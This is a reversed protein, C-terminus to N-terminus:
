PLSFAECLKLSAFDHRDFWVPDKGEGWLVGVAWWGPYIQYLNSALGRAATIHGFSELNPEVVLGLRAAADSVTFYQGPRAGTPLESPFYIQGARAATQCLKTIASKLELAADRDTQFVRNSQLRHILSCILECAENLSIKGSVQEKCVREVAEPLSTRGEDIRATCEESTLQGPVLSSSHIKRM